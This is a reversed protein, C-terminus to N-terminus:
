ESMKWFKKGRDWESDVYGIEQLDKLLSRATQQSIDFEHGINPEGLREKQKLYNLIKQALKIEKHKLATKNQLESWEDALKWVKNNSKEEQFAYGRDALKDLRDRATRQPISLKGAATVADLGRPNSRLIKLIERKGSNSIENDLQGSTNPDACDGDPEYKGDDNINEIGHELGHQICRESGQKLSIGIDASASKLRNKLPKNVYIPHTENKEEHTKKETNM